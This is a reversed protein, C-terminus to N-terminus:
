TIELLITAKVAIRQIVQLRNWNETKSDRDKNDNPSTAPLNM